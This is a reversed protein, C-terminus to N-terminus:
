PAAASSSGPPSHTACTTSGFTRSAQRSWPRSGLAVSRTGTGAGSSTAKPRARGAGPDAGGILKVTYLGAIGDCVATWLRDLDVGAELMERPADILTEAKKEGAWISRGPTRRFRPSWRPALATFVDNIFLAQGEHGARVATDVAVTLAQMAVLEVDPREAPAGRMLVSGAM